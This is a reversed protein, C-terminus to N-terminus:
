QLRASLSIDVALARSVPCGAKAKQALSEFQEASIGPVSGLLDLHISRITWGGAEKEMTLDADVALKEVTHGAGALQFSLAMAFCGAHAAAILEEPNTGARGDEDEFRLKASYPQDELVGSGTTLTGAGTAGPGRWVAQAKRKM